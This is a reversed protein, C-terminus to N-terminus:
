PQRSLEIRSNTAASRASSDAPTTSGFGKASLREEAIGLAVLKAKVANARRDSLAQEIDSDGVMKVHAEVLFAGTVGGLATALRRMVSDSAPKLESADEGGFELERIALRGAKLDATLQDPTASAGGFMGKVGSEAGNVGKNAVETAKDMTAGLGRNTKMLASDTANAATTVLTSEARARHDDIKESIGDTVKKKLGDLWSQASLRSPVAFTTVALFLAGGVNLHHHRRSARPTGISTLSM